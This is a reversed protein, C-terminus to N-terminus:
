EHRLARLPSLAAARRAPWYSAFVAIAALVAATLAFTAPDSARVGFLLSAMLRTLLFAGALGAAVGLLALRLGEGVVLRLVAPPDAGLAMRIGIEQHRQTVSYSIVGYIGVGALVLALAAFIGLLLMNFQQPALSAYIQQRLSTVNFLPQQSDVARVQREVAGALALPDGATRILLHPPLLRVLTATVDSPVQPLPLYMAPERERNELNQQKVDNVVGVIVRPAPEAFQPSGRGIWIAQGVPNQKPWWTRVAAQNIIVVPQSHADDADTFARGRLLHLGLAAVFGPTVAHYFADPSDNARPAPRGVIAFLLDPCPGLPVDSTAAAAVVGPLGQIRPLVQRFFNAVPPTTSYRGASLAVQMELAHDPNFGPNVDRLRAFSGILLGAGILLVVAFAVETIVLAGRLRRQRPGTGARVSGEKLVDNLQARSADLAPALGFIVGTVLALGLTFLLVWGNVGIANVQPLGPPSLALLVRM